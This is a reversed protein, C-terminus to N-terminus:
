QETEDAAKQLRAMRIKGYAWLGAGTLSAGAVFGVAGLGAVQKLSLVAKVPKAVAEAIEPFDFEPLAESVNEVVQELVEVTTAAVKSM